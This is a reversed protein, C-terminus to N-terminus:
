KNSMGFNALMTLAQTGVHLRHLNTTSTASLIAAQINIQAPDQHLGLHTAM